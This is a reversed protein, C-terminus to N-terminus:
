SFKSVLNVQSETLCFELTGRGVAGLGDQCPPEQSLGESVVGDGATAGGVTLQTGGGAKTRWM